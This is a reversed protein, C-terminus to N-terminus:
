HNFRFEVSTLLAWVVEQIAAIRDKGAASLYGTIEKREDDSPKRTLVSLYLEDTMANVDKMLQMRDVLAGGRTTLWGRLVPGNAMALAQELTPEFDQPVGPQGAFLTILPQVQPAVRTYLTTENLTKALAKREADTMGTAQHLSFALAEPALPKLPAVAYSRPPVEVGAKASSSRQYTQSLAIERLLYRLDFKHKVAEDVLVDLLEPHSPPNGAHDKELPHFLGRGFMLSWTRNAFNRKFSVTEARALEDGLLARRSWTPVGRTTKTPAVKYEKGKEVPPEKVATRGPVRPGTSKTVKKPDFVSQFTVDGDAKESYVVMKLATDNLATSRNVFAILGYYLDQKYDEIAPHDHCQACQLDLGLFVRSVDRVVVNPEGDRDLFFRAPGRNKPDVGDASLIEKALQDWPKNAAFSSRLYEHWIQGPVNKAPRREMLMVDFVHALHRAHEPSALLQDILKTRKAPDKDAFFARAQDATPINGVLDLYIRRLFEEDSALPAAFKDFNPTKQAILQDIRQHLPQQAAATAACLSFASLVLCARIPM